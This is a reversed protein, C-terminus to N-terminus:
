YYMDIGAPPPPPPAGPAPATPVLGAGTAGGMVFSNQDDNTNADGSSAPWGHRVSLSTNQFSPSVMTASSTVYMSNINATSPGSYSPTAAQDGGNLTPAFFSDLGAFPDTSQPQQQAYSENVIMGNMPPVPPPASPMSTQPPHEMLVPPPASSLPVPPPKEMPMPPVSLSDLSLGGLLDTPSLEKEKKVKSGLTAAFIDAGGLGMINPELLDNQPKTEGTPHSTSSEGFDLLDVPDTEPEASSTLADGSGMDLLDEAPEVVASSVAFQTSMMPDAAGALTPAVYGGGNKGGSDSFARKEREQLKLMEDLGHAAGVIVKGDKSTYGSGFSNHAKALNSKQQQRQEEAIRRKLTYLRVEDSVFGAKERSGIPVLSNPDASKNRQDMLYERNTMLKLVQSASDRVPGGKDVGGGKIRMLMGAAGQQQQALLVTNYNTLQDIHKGLFVAEPLAQESGCLLLHKTTVLAKTLALPTSTTPKSLVTGITEFITEALDDAGSMSEHFTLSALQNLQLSSIVQVTEDQLLSRIQRTTAASAPTSGNTQGSLGSIANGLDFM